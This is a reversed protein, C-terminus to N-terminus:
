EAAMPTVAPHLPKAPNVHGCRSCTRLRTSEAYDQMVRPLDVMINKVHVEIRHHMSRCSDCYWNFGDLVGEPRVREVV